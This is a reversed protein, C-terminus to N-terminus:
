KVEKPKRLIRMKDEKDEVVFGDALAQMYESSGVECRIWNNVHNEWSTVANTPKVVRLAAMYKEETEKDLGVAEALTDFIALRREIDINAMTHFERFEPLLLRSVDVGCAKCIIELTKLDMSEPKLANTKLLTNYFDRMAKVRIDAEKDKQITEARGTVINLVPKMKTLERDVIEVWQPELSSKDYNYPDGKKPKHGTAFQVVASDAGLLRGQTEFFYRFGHARVRQSGWKDTKEKLGARDRLEAIVREVDSTKRINVFLEEHILDGKEQLRSNYLSKLSDVADEFLTIHYGFLKKGRVAKIRFPAAMDTKFWGHWTRAIQAMEAPAVGNVMVLVLAKDRPKQAAKYLSQVEEFSMANRQSSQIEEITPEIRYPYSVDRTLYYNLFSVISAAYLTKDAFGIRREARTIHQSFFHQIELAWANVVNKEDSKQESKVRDVWTGIDPYKKSLHNHWYLYLHDQYTGRTSDKDINQTWALVKPTAAVWQDVKRTSVARSSITGTPYKPHVKGDELYVKYRDFRIENFCL